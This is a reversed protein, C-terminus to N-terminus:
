LTTKSFLLAIKGFIALLTTAFGVISGIVGLISTFTSVIGSIVTGVTGLIGSIIGKGQPKTAGAKNDNAATPSSKKNERMNELDTLMKKKAIDNAEQLINNTNKAYNILVNSNELIQENINILGRLLSEMTATSISSGKAPLRNAEAVRAAARNRGGGGGGSFAPTLASLGASEMSASLINSPRLADLDLAQVTARKAGRYVSGAGRSIGGTVGGVVSKASRGVSMVKNGIANGVTKTGSVVKGAVKKTLSGLKAM